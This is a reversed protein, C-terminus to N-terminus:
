FAIRALVFDDGAWRVGVGEVSGLQLIPLGPQDITAISVIRQESTGGLFAIRQGNPSIEADIVAPVRGFASAPPPAAHAAYASMALCAAAAAM